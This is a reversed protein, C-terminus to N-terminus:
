ENAAQQGDAFDWLTPQNAQLEAEKLYKSGLAHYDPKLEAGIFQRGLRLAEYGTSGICVSVVNQAIISRFNWDRLIIDHGVFVRFLAAFKGTASIYFPFRSVRWFWRRAFTLICCTSEASVGKIPLRRKLSGIILITRNFTHSFGKNTSEHAFVRWTVSPSGCFRAIIAPFRHSSRVPTMVSVIQGKAIGLTKAFPFRFVPCTFIIWSPYTTMREIVAGVPYSLGALCTLSIVMLALQALQSFRIVSACQINMM